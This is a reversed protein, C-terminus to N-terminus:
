LKYKLYVRANEKFATIVQKITNKYAILGM